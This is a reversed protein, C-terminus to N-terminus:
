SWDRYRHTIPKERKPPNSSADPSSGIASAPTWPSDAMFRKRFVTGPTAFAVDLAERPVKSSDTRRPVKRYGCAQMLGTASAWSDSAVVVEDLADCANSEDALVAYAIVRDAVRTRASM